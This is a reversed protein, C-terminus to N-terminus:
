QKAGTQNDFKKNIATVSRYFNEFAGLIARAKQNESRMEEMLAMAEARMEDRLADRITGELLKAEPPYTWKPHDADGLVPPPDGRSFLRKLFKM